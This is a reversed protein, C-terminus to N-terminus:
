FYFNTTVQILNIIKKYLNCSYLLRCLITTYKSFININLYYKSYPIFWKFGTLKTSYTTFYQMERGFRDWNLHVRNLILIYPAHKHCYISVPISLTEHRHPHSVDWSVAEASLAYRQYMQVRSSIRSSTSSYTVCQIAKPSQLLLRTSLLFHIFPKWLFSM